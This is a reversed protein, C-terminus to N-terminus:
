TVQQISTEEIWFTVVEPKEPEIKKLLLHIAQNHLAVKMRGAELLHRAVASGM